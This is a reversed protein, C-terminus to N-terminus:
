VKKMGTLSKKRNVRNKYLECQVLHNQYSKIQQKLETSIRETYELLLAKIEEHQAETFELGQKKLWDYIKKRESVFNGPM